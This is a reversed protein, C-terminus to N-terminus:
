PTPPRRPSRLATARRLAPRPVTDAFHTRSAVLRRVPYRRIAPNADRSLNALPDLARRLGLAFITTTDIGTAQENWNFHMPTIVRAPILRIPTAIRHM